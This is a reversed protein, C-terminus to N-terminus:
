VWDTFKEVGGVRVFMTIQDMRLAWRCVSASELIEIEM